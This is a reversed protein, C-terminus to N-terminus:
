HEDSLPYPLWLRANKSDKPANLNIKITVIGQREKAYSVCTVLLFLMILFSVKTKM